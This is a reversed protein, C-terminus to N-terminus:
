KKQAEDAPKDSTAKASDSAEAEKKAEADQRELEEIAGQAKYLEIKKDEIFGELQVIQNQATHMQAIIREQGRTLEQIRAANRGTPGEDAATCLCGVLVVLLPLTMRGM